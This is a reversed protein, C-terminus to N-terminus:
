RGRGYFKQEFKRAWDADTDEDRPDEGPKINGEIPRVPAPAASVEKKAPAPAKAALKAFEVAMKLPPLSTIREALAPDKGLEFIVRQPNDTALAAEVTNYTMYGFNRLNQVASDFEPFEKVGNQYVEDAARNFSAAAEQAAKEAARETAIREAQERALREVESRPVTDNENSAEPAPAAKQAKELEELRAQLEKTKREAERKEFAMKNFAKQYPEDLKSVKEPQPDAEAKPAETTQGEDAKPPDEQEAGTTQVTIEDEPSSATAGDPVAGTLANDTM